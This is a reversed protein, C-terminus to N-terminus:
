SWKSMSNCPTRRACAIAKLSAYNEVEFTAELVFVVVVRFM